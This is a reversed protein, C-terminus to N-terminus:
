PTTKPIRYGTGDYEWARKSPDVEFTEHEILFQPQPKAAENNRVWTCGFCIKMMWRVFANPVSGITPTYILGQGGPKNGFMYCTWPSLPPIGFNFSIRLKSNDIKM